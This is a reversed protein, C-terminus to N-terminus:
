RTAFWVLFAVMAFAAVVPWVPVFRLKEAQKREATRVSTM